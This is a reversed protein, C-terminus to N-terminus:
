QHKVSASEQLGETADALADNNENPTCIVNQLVAKPETMMLGTEVLNGDHRKIVQAKDPDIEVATSLPVALSPGVLSEAQNKQCMDGRTYVYTFEFHLDPSQVNVSVLCSM